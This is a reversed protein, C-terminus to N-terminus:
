LHAMSSVKDPGESRTLNLLITKRAEDDLQLLVRQLAEGLTAAARVPDQGSLSALIDDTKM